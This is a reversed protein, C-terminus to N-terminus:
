PPGFMVERDTMNNRAQNAALLWDSLDRLSKKPIQDYYQKIFRPYSAGTHKIMAIGDMVQTISHHLQSVAFIREKEDLFESM